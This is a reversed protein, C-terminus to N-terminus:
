DIFDVEIVTLHEWIKKKPKYNLNMSNKIPHGRKCRYEIFENINDLCKLGYFNLKKTEGDIYKSKQTTKINLGYDSLLSNIHGLFQKNSTKKDHRRLKFLRISTTADTYHISEKQVRERNKNFVEEPIKKDDFINSFGLMTIIDRIRRNREAVMEVNYNDLEFTNELGKNRDDILTILNTIRHTKRYVRNIFEDDFWLVGCIKKKMHKEIIYKERRTATNDNQKKILEMFAEGSVDEITSVDYGTDLKEGKEQKDETIEFGYGKQISLDKLLPIFFQPEKNHIEVENYVKIKDYLELERIINVDGNTTEEYRVKVGKRLTELHEDMENYTILDANKIHPLGNSYVYIKKERIKRIRSCMQLFARQSTSKDSLVCYLKDVHERNFDVGSELTPSYIIVRYNNWLNNIDKLQSKLADDSKSTHAITSYTDKFRREYDEAITSSMSCIGINKGESLDKLILDDFIEKNKTLVFDKTSNKYTNEIIKQKGFYELFDYSRNSFDGDLALIKTSIKLIWEMLNFTDRAYKITSSEYHNLLSEIEDLIVLDYKPVKGSRGIHELSEIQCILKDSMFEKDFYSVFGFEKFKGTIDHTLSQRHTIWLCRKPKFELQIKKSLETKGTDYPSKISLTKISSSNFWKRTTKSVPDNSTMISTDLEILYRQNIKKTKDAFLSCNSIIRQYSDPSHEKALKKLYGIYLDHITFTTWKYNCEDMDFSDYKKSWEIWMDKCGNSNNCNFLCMGVTIWGKYTDILEPKIMNLYDSIDKLNYKYELNFTQSKLNPKPNPNTKPKQNRQLRRQPSHPKLKYPIDDICISNPPIYEMIFDEIKGRKIIHKVGNNPKGKIKGKSQNPFRFWHNSYVTTDVVKNNNQLFEEKHTNFFNTHIEKLKECSGYYKPMSYHYSGEKGETYSVDSCELELGYGKKLFDMLLKEIDEFSGDYHDVDGFLKYSKDEQIREHYYNDTKLKRKITKLPHEEYDSNIKNLTWGNYFSTSYIRYLKNETSVNSSNLTSSNM